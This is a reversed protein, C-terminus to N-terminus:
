RINVKGTKLVKTDEEISYIYLGTPLNGLNITITKDSASVENQSVIEGMSNFLKVILTQKPSDHFDINITENAPNPYISLGTMEGSNLDGISLPNGEAYLAEVEAHNM